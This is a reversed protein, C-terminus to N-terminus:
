EDVYVSLGFERSVALWVKEKGITYSSFLVLINKEEPPSQLPISFYQRLVSIITNIVIEQSPFNYKGKCYTNDVYIHDISPFSKRTSTSQDCKNAFKALVTNDILPPIYRFDGTYLTTFFLQGYSTSSSSLSSPTALSSTQTKDGHQSECDSAMWRYLSFLFLCAGPCHNAEIVDIVAIRLDGEVDSVDPNEELWDVVIDQQIFWSQIAPFSSRPVNTLAYRHGVEMM